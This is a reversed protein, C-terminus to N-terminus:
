RDPSRMPSVSEATAGLDAVRRASLVSFAGRGDPSARTRLFGNSCLIERSKFGDVDIM